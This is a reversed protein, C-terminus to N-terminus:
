KTKGGELVYCIREDAKIPQVFRDGYGNRFALLKKKGSQTVVCETTTKEGYRDPKIMLVKTGVDLRKVQDATLKRDRPRIWEAPIM